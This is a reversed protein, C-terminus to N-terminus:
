FRTAYSWFRIPLVFVLHQVGISEPQGFIGVAYSHHSPIRNTDTDGSPCFQLVLVGSFYEHRDVRMKVMYTPGAAQAYNFNIHPWGAVDQPKAQMVLKIKTKM